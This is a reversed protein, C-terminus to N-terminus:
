FTLNVGVIYNRTTPTNFGVTLIRRQYGGTAVNENGYSNTEPDLGTEKTYPSFMVFPNQVTFYMRMKIDGSKIVNKSLDYGLSITRVKLLSADFYALTSAYQPNDGSTMGGPKPYKADTNEPTWYDVKIQGRRGTLMNLYGNPGHINSILIGGHKFIGVLSLDFDKYTVRTNFGGEFDPDVDMIQRDDAGAGTGIARTPKGSADYTGTYLVKIMGVNGGPVLTNLYGAASDKSNTWLGIKKFDYIADINHGVFWGNGIDQTAGSALAVLKNKNTYINFGADWTWGNYNDLITGNLSLEFGKNQTKGINKTTRSVGATAPLSLNLLLDKTNTIYYEATGTLRGKLLTFDVAYNQTESYEWGLNPNPVESVYYGTAYTADGFNYQRTSLLGLTKYPNVSQNSTQGYGARLKLKDVFTIGKMFSENSINWGISLAPYNHWKHGPALRSSGDTRFTASLMYRNDYSYMARGMWSELGTLSYNGGGINIEGTAAGLNYFQFGEVPVEKASMSSSNYKNQEASYLALLNVNHKQAFTRDYTLINEITWHYTQSNSVGATSPTTLTTSNVGMGTFNGNNSQMFDLGLNARYKLGEVWPIKVEGYISNYTAYARTENLWQDKLNKVVENTLVINEDQAMKVSRKLTGDANYPNALPSSSIVGYLGVQEGERINYNNNTTFGVKFFKGVQQDVSGRFSFRTFQQTPTLSENKYYEGGFNYGGTETGGSVGISQSTVMATKNFFLDQWDTNVDDAEDLGNTFKNALKRYTAFEPGEMMPYKAFLTQYGYYGNYSIKPKGKQGRNTTILIVGNAGRSGYIATASADKLVEISKVDNTNIGAIDTIAGPFPIGDLVILPDNSALLSRQGRIRIQMTSGPKTNTQAFEVGAIRGQLAQTINPAPVERLRDGNISAVSGTVAEKRVTGYGIVVVQELDGASSTLTLNHIAQSRIAIEKTPYGVSSIVLTGNSPANIEFEGNANTTTGTNTGKLVVSASIVPQNKEDTIRGKVLIKNQALGPLVLFAMGFLLLAIKTCKRLLLCLSTSAQPSQQTVSIKM